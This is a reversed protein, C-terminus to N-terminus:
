MIPTNKSNLRIVRGEFCCTRLSGRIVGLCSFFLHIAPQSIDLPTIPTPSLQCMSKGTLKRPKTWRAIKHKGRVGVNRVLVRDKVEVCTGRVKKNYNQSNHLQSKAISASALSYAYELQKRLGAVYDTYKQQEAQHGQRRFLLDEPLRPHRGFMLFFPSYGTSKHRTSNYAHTLAPVYKKWDTKQAKDMTGLMDLLTCNFREVQGNAMPHYPM